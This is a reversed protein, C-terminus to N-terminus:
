TPDRLASSHFRSILRSFNQKWMPFGHIKVIHPGWVHHISCIYIYVM